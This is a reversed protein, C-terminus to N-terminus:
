QIYPPVGTITGFGFYDDVPARRIRITTKSRLTIRSVFTSFETTAVRVLQSLSSADRELVVCCIPTVSGHPTSDLEDRDMYRFNFDCYSFPLTRSELEPLFQVTQPRFAIPVFDGWARLEGGAIELFVSQDAHYVLGEKAALYSATTKGQNPSGLILLGKVGSSVCAAGFPVLGLSGATMYFLTDVFPSTFGPGDEVLGEAVFAVAEQGELDVALFTRQGFHAFRLGDDSFTSRRPWPQCVKVDSDVVIRWLFTPRGSAAGPYRAFLRVMHDLLRSSNTELRVTRGMVPLYASYPTPVFRRMPDNRIDTTARINDGEAVVARAPIATPISEVQVARKM